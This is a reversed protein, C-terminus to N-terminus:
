LFKVRNNIHFVPPRVTTTIVELTTPATASGGSSTVAELTAAEAGTARRVRTLTMTSSAGETSNQSSARARSSAVAEPPEKDSKSPIDEEEEQGSSNLDPPPYRGALFADELRDKILERLEAMASQQRNILEFQHQILENQENSLAELNGLINDIDDMSMASNFYCNKTAASTRSQQPVVTVSYQSIQWDGVRNATVTTVTNPRPPGSLSFFSVSTAILLTKM